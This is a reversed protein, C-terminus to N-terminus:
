YSRKPQYEVHIHDGEALVDFDEGLAAKLRQVCLPVHEPTPQRLDIALGVYHLSGPAHEGESISTVVLDARIPAESWAAYAVLVVVLLEPRMGNLRVGPKLM